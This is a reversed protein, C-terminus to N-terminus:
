VMYILLTLAFTMKSATCSIIFLKYNRSANVDDDDDDDDDGDDGDDGDDDNNKDDM